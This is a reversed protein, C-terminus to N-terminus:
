LLVTSDTEVYCNSNVFLGVFWHVFKKDLDVFFGTGKGMQLHSLHVALIFYFYATGPELNGNLQFTFL